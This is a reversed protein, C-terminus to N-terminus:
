TRWFGNLAPHMPQRRVRTSPQRSLRPQRRDRRRRHLAAPPAPTEDGAPCDIPQEGLNLFLHFFLIKISFKTKKRNCQVNCSRHKSGM